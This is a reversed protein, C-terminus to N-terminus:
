NKLSGYLCLISSLFPCDRKEALNKKATLLVANLLLLHLIVYFGLHMMRLHDSLNGKDARAWHDKATQEMGYFYYAIM